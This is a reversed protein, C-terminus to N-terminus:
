RLPPARGSHLDDAGSNGSWIVPALTPGASISFRHTWPLVKLNAHVSRVLPRCCNHDCCTPVANFAHDETTSTASAGCHHEASRLCCAHVPEASIALALPAIISVLMFILLLRAITRNM